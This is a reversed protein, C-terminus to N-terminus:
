SLWQFISILIGFLPLYSLTLRHIRCHMGYFICGDTHNNTKNHNYWWNKMDWHVCSTIIVNDNRWFSTAVDNQSLLSTIIVDHTRQSWHIKVGRPWQPLYLFPVWMCTYHYLRSGHDSAGNVWSFWKSACVGQLEVKVSDCRAATWM